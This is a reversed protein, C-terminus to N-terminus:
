SEKVLSLTLTKGEACLTDDYGYLDRNVPGKKDDAPVVFTVTANNANLTWTFTKEGVSTPCFATKCEPTNAECGKSEDPTVTVETDSKYVSLAHYKHECAVPNVEFYYGSSGDFVIGYRHPSVGSVDAVATGECSSSLIRWTGKLQATLPSQNGSCGTLILVGFCFINRLPTEKRVLMVTHM